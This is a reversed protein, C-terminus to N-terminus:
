WLVRGKHSASELYSGAFVANLLVVVANLGPEPTADFALLFVHFVAVLLFLVGLLLYGKASM